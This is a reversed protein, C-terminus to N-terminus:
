HSLNPINSLEPFYIPINDWNSYMCFFVRGIREAKEFWPLWKNRTTQQQTTKCARGM